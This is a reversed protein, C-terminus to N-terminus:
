VREALPRAPDAAVGAFGPWLGTDLDPVLTRLDIIEARLEERLGDELEPWLDTTPERRALLRGAAALARTRLRTIPEFDDRLELFRLTRAYEGLPDARCKEYQLVLTREPDFLEWLTRLQSAYRGRTVTESMYYAANEPPRERLEAALKRRYRDIPDSLLVLLKADPAARKLLPPTWFDGLYRQSWEGALKGPRRPFHRHYAAVDEQTMEQHCFPQFYGLSRRSRRRAEVDPHKLLLSLWWLTGAATTGVGVFDPPGTRARGLHTLLRLGIM